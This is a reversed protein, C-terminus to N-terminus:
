WKKTVWAGKTAGRMNRSALSCFAAVRATGPPSFDAKAHHARAQSAKCGGPKPHGKSRTQM